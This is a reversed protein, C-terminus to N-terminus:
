RGPDPPSPPASVWQELLLTADDSLHGQQHRLVAHTLRRVTEGPPHQSAAERELFDILRDLGFLGGDADRAEVIGDTYLILWDGPQLATSGLVLEGTGLGFPLRRGEDLSQVVKGDRLLLPAPHGAAVYLLRGTHLDLDTLLGTAFADPCHEALTDDIAQAQAYLGHGNRRAVRYATMATAAILAAPFGHGMGDFIATRVRDPELAYDFTDGGARYAPEIRGALSFRDSGAALPPLLAWILEAAVSRPQTRRIEDISDGHNTAAVVLHAVLSSLWGCQERFYPDRLDESRTVGIELVGLREVGDLMPVWLRSQGDAEAPHTTATQFARGAMTGEVAIPASSTHQDPVPHLLRQEYDVLYITVEGGLAQGAESTISALEGALAQPAADLLRVLSTLAGVEPLPGRVPRSYPVRLRGALDDLRENAAHALIDVELEALELAGHLYAEVEVLDATGGLGFYAWWLEDLTFSRRQLLIRLASRQPGASPRSALPGGRRSHSM